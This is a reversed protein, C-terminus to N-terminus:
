AANPILLVPILDGDAGAAALAVGVTVGAAKTVAKGDAGVQVSAHAAIAGGAAVVTAGLVDVGVLEGADTTSFVTVGFANEGAAPYAGAATVFREAALAGAAAVSLNLVPTKSPYM